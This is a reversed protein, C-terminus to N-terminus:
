IFIFCNFLLLIISFYNENILTCNDCSSMSLQDQTMRFKLLKERERKQGNPNFKACRHILLLLLLSRRRRHSYCHLSLACTEHQRKVVLRAKAKANSILSQLVPITKRMVIPYISRLTLETLLECDRFAM